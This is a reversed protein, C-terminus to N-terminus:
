AQSGSRSAAGPRTPWEAADTRLGSLTEFETRLVATEFDDVHGVALEAARVGDGALIAELLAKHSALHEALDVRDLFVRWIRRALNYYQGLTSQLYHNRTCAYIASHVEADLRILESTDSGPHDLRGLLERVVARDAESAREAARTAALGELQRRVDALLAHDTINIESAFTGRRPYIVVLREAELRKIAERVPTRGLGLEECLRDEQIPAGPAIAVSVILERIAYYAQEALSKAYVGGGPAAVDAM